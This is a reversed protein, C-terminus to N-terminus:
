GDAEGARVMAAAYYLPEELLAETALTAIGRGALAEVASRTCAVRGAHRSPDEISVSSLDAGAERAAESVRSPEGLLIPSVIGEDALRQTALLIRPDASEPFVIRQPDAQARRLIRKVTLM